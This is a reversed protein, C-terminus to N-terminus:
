DNNTKTAHSFRRSKEIFQKRKREKLQRMRKHAAGEYQIKFQALLREYMNILETLSIKQSNWNLM